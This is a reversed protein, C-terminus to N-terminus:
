PGLHHHMVASSSEHRSLNNQCESKFSERRQYTCDRCRTTPPPALAVTIEAAKAADHSSNEGFIEGHDM